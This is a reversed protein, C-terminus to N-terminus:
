KVEGVEVLSTCLTLYIGKASAHSGVLVISYLLSATSQEVNRMGGALNDVLIRLHVAPNRMLRALDSCRQIRCVFSDLDILLAPLLGFISKIRHHRKDHHRHHHYFALLVAM